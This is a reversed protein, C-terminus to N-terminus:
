AKYFRSGPFRVIADYSYPEGRRWQKAILDGNQGVICELVNCGTGHPLAELNKIRADLEPRYNFIQMKM